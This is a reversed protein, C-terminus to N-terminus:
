AFSFFSYVTYSSPLTAYLQSDVKTLDSKQLLAVDEFEDGAAVAVAAKERKIAEEM